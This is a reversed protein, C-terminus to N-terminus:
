GHMRRPQVIVPEEESCGVVVCDSTALVWEISTGTVIIAKASSPCIDDSM